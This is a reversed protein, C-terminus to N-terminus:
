TCIFNVHNIKAWIADTRQGFVSMKKNKRECKKGYVCSLFAVFFLKLKNM